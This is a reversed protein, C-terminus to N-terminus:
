SAYDEQPRPHAFAVVRFWRGRPATEDHYRAALSRVTAALEDAFAARDEASAFRVDADISLMPVARRAANARATLQGLERVARAALAVLYACSLRDAVRAPDAGAAGLAAPSVVYAAASPAYIHETLGGHTRTGVETVLGHGVLAKLHYAVKQRALGLRPAVGAASAPEDALAALLSARTPDLATAAVRPDDIVSLDQM